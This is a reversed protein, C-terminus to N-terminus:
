LALTFIYDNNINIAQHGVLWTNNGGKVACMRHNITNDRIAFLVRYGGVRLRYGDRGSLSKIDGEPPDHELQIVAKIIRSKIPENM